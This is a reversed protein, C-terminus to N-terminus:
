ESWVWSLDAIPGGIGLGPHCGLGSCVQMILVDTHELFGQVQCGHMILVDTHELVGQVQCGMGLGPHRISDAVCCRGQLVDAM